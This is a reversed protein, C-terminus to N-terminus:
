AAPLILTAKLGGLDSRGLKLEGGYLNAIDETIGLGQGHGPTTEDLRKGRRTITEIEQEDIGPGDDEIILALNQHDSSCSVVVRTKAWKFANDILNGAMEELDQSEGRFWKDEICLLEIGIKRDKHIHEVAFSLDDIVSRVSTRYGIADQKGYIRARSLYHDISNAMVHSQDLILQGQKGSLTRAENRIVTLPNKVSHALDGLQNRARKLLTENHDLLYNLEDVLPQVDSPFERPLRETKGAKIDSIGSQIANLPRLALRVQMVVAVSLGIGLVLFSTAIHLYFEKVDDTIAMEPATAVITLAGAEHPYAVNIVQARLHHGGPGELIQVEHSETVETNSLDLLNTGLSPSSYLSKDVSLIEWYWGSNIRHFRPDTPERSLVLKGNPLTEVAAVLEEVHTFVHDDYHGQTHERYFQGMLVGTFVLAIVIWFVSLTIIRKTLSKHM